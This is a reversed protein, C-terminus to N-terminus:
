THPVICNVCDISTYSYFDYINSMTGSYEYKADTKLVCDNLYKLFIKRQYFQLFIYGEVIFHNYINKKRRM